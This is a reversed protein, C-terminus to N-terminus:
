QPSGRAAPAHEARQEPRERKRNKRSDAGSDACPRQRSDIQAAPGGFGSSMAPPMRAVTSIKVRVSQGIALRRSGATSRRRAAYSGLPTRKQSTNTSGDSGAAAIRCCRVARRDASRGGDAIRTVLQHLHSPRRTRRFRRDEDMFPRSDAPRDRGCRCCIRRRRGRGASPSTVRDESRAPRRARAAAGAPRRSNRLRYTAYNRVQLLPTRRRVAHPNAPSRASEGGAARTRVRRRRKSGVDRREDVRAARRAMVLAAGSRERQGGVRLDPAPGALDDLHRAAAEHGRPRRDLPVAVEDALAPQAISSMARRAAQTLAPMGFPSRAAAGADGVNGVEQCSPVGSRTSVAGGPNTSSASPSSRNWLKTSGTGSWPRRSVHPRDLDKGSRRPQHVVRVHQDISRSPRARAVGRIGGHAKRPHVQLDHRISEIGVTMEQEPLWTGRRDGLGVVHGPAEITAGVEHQVHM